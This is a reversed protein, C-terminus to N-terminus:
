TLTETQVQQIVQTIVDPPQAGSFAYKGALVFFPVGRVGNQVAWAMDERLVDLGAGDLLQTKIHDRDFGNAAAIDQLVDMQSIDQGHEFYAAYLADVIAKKQEDPTIAILQHSLTSNLARTIADFNFTLGVREGMERPAAFLPEIDPQGLKAQMYPIFDYGEPPMNDNLFFTRYRISVDPVPYQELALELHRKGIRCWPCVTDHFIDIQM